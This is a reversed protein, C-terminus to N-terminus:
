SSPAAPAKVGTTRLTAISRMVTPLALYANKMRPSSAEGTPPHAHPVAGEPAHRLSAAELVHLVEDQAVHDELRCLLCFPLALPAVIFGLKVSSRHTTRPVWAWLPRM